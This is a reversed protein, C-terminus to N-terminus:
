TLITLQIDEGCVQSQPSPVMVQFGKGAFIRKPFNSFRFSIRIMSFDTVLKPVSMLSALIKDRKNYLQQTNM